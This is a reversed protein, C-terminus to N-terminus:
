GYIYIHTEPALLRWPARGLFENWTLSWVCFALVKTGDLHPYPQLAAGGRCRKKKGLAVFSMSRLLSPLLVLPLLLLMLPLLLLLLLLSSSLLLLLAAVQGRLRRVVLCKELERRHELIALQPPRRSPGHTRSSVAADTLDIGYRYTPMVQSFISFRFVSAM